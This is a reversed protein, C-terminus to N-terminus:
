LGHDRCISNFTRFVQDACMSILEQRTPARSPVLIDNTYRLDSAGQSLFLERMKRQLEEQSVGKQQVLARTFSGSELNYEIQGQNNIKIEGAAVVPRGNALNLHKVGYEIANDVRGFVVEGSDTVVYTYSNNKELSSVPVNERIRGSQVAYKRSDSTQTIRVRGYPPGLDRINQTMSDDHRISPSGRFLTPSTAATRRQISQIDEIRVVKSYEKGNETWIVRARGTENNIDVVRADSRGGSSRPISVESGVRFALPEVKGAASWNGVVVNDNPTLRELPVDKYGIRGDETPFSVRARGTDTNISLIQGPTTGGASRPINVRQGVSFNDAYSGFIGANLGTRIEQPNFGARKLTNARARIQAPTLNFLEGSQNHAELIARRKAPDQSYRGPPVGVLEEFKRIRESDSLRSNAIIEDRTFNQRAGSGRQSRRFSELGERLERMDREHLERLVKADEVKELRSFEAPDVVYVKGDPTVRFQLDVPEIGRRILDNGIEDMRDIIEPTLKSYDVSEGPQIHTGEVFDTVIRTNGDQGRVTGRYQPGYGLESLEETFKIENDLRAQMVARRDGASQPNEVIKAFLKQDGSQMIEAGNNNAGVMGRSEFEDPTIREIVRANELNIDNAREATSGRPNLDGARGAIRGAVGLTAGDVLAFLAAEVCGDFKDTAQSLDSDVSPCQLNSARQRKIDIEGAERSCKKKADLTSQAFWVSDPGLMIGPHVRNVTTATRATLAVRGGSAFLGLGGTAVTLGASIASSTLVASTQNRDQTGEAVCQQSILIQTDENRRRDGSYIEDMVPAKQLAENLREPSCNDQNRGRDDLIRVGQACRSATRLEEYLATLSRKNANLQAQIAKEVISPNNSSNSRNVRQFESGQLIPFKSYFFSKRNKNEEENCITNLNQILARRGEVTRLSGENVLGPYLLQVSESNAFGRLIDLAQDGLATNANHRLLSQFRYVSRVQTNGWGSQLNSVSQGNIYNSQCLREINELARVKAAAAAVDQKFKAIEDNALKPCASLSRCKDPLDYLGGCSFGTLPKVGLAADTAALQEVINNMGDRFRSNAYYYKAIYTKALPDDDINCGSFPAYARAIGQEKFRNRLRDNIQQASLSSQKLPTFAECTSARSKLLGLFGDERDDQAWRRLDALCNTGTPRVGQTVSSGSLSESRPAVAERGHLSFPLLNGLVFLCLALFQRFTGKSM